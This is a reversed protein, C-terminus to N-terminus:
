SRIGKELVFNFSDDDAFYSLSEIVASSIVHNHSPEEFYSKILEKFRTLGIKGLSIIADAKVYYSKEDKLLNALFEGSEQSYKFEGLAKVVGRRAKSPEVRISTLYKLAEENGIKGLAMASEYKVGWFEDKLLEGLASLAKVSTFRTLGNIANIKCMIDKDRSEKILMEEGQMDNTVKFWKFKPDLCVYEGEEEVEGEGEITLIKESGDRKMVRVELFMDYKIDGTQEIKIRKGDYHVNVIPHGATYVYQDFFWTLDENAVEEMAKRFDETDVSSFKYKELYNKIGLKFKSDGLYSRLTHLVLAGKPYTHRDFLEEGWKYYGIVIPRSYKKYEELYDKLKMYMEYIFENEGRSHLYYLAQFYTAFGENLWINSWHKTTVLDGFWQHALEHSMLSDSSYDMEAIEDHLTQYTLHTSTIYEMGGRMSLLVIQAYKNYPYKVGTYSSFFSIADKTKSLNWLFKEYGKPLYYQLSIGDFEEEFISFNGVAVSNLYASHPKDMLWHFYNYEGEEWRKVLVGNSVAILPKKVKIVKESTAKMGPYDIVPIWHPASMVEGVNCAEIIDEKKLFKFTKPKQVSYNIEILNDGQVDLTINKGDYKYEYPKDNVKVSSINFHIADLKVPGWSTVNIKASGEIRQSDVDVFLFFNYHNVKFKLREPYVMKYDKLIFNKGLRMQERQPVFDM